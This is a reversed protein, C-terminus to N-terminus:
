LLQTDDSNFMIALIFVVQGPGSSGAYEEEAPKQRIASNAAAKRKQWVESETMLPAASFDPVGELLGLPGIDDAPAQSM